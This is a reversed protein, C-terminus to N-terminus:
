NSQRHKNVQKGDMSYEDNVMQKGNGGSLEELKRSGLESSVM